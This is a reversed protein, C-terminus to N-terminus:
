KLIAPSTPWTGIDFDAKELGADVRLDNEARQMTWWAWLMVGIAPIMVLAAIFFPLTDM